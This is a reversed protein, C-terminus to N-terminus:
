VWSDVSLKKRSSIFAYTVSPQSIVHLPSFVRKDFVMTNWEKMDSWTGLRSKNTM